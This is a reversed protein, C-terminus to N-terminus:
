DMLMVVDCQNNDINLSIFFQKSPSSPGVPAVAVMLHRGHSDIAGPTFSLAAWGVTRYGVVSAIIQPSNHKSSVKWIQVASQSVNISDIYQGAYWVDDTTTTDVYLGIPMTNNATMGVVDIHKSVVDFRSINLQPFSPSQQWLSEISDGLSFFSKKLKEKAMSGDDITPLYFVKKGLDVAANGPFITKLNINAFVKAGQTYTCPDTFSVNTPYPSFADSFVMLPSDVALSSCIASLFFLLVQRRWMNM